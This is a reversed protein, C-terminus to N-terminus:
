TPIRVCTGVRFQEISHKVSLLDFFVSKTVTTKFVKGIKEMRRLNDMYIKNDHTDIDVGIEKVPFAYNTMKTHDGMISFNDYIITDGNDM